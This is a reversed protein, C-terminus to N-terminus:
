SRSSVSKVPPTVRRSWPTTITDGSTVRHAIGDVRNLNNPRSRNDLYGLLRGPDGHGPESHGDDDLICSDRPRYARGARSACLARWAAIRIRQCDDGAFGDYAMTRNRNQASQGIVSVRVVCIGCRGAHADAEIGSIGAINDLDHNSAVHGLRAPAPAIPRDPNAGAAQQGLGIGGPRVHDLNGDCGALLGQGHKGPSAGRSRCSRGPRRAGGAGRTGGPRLALLSEHARRPFGSWVSGGSVSSGLALLPEDPVRSRGPRLAIRPRGPRGAFGPRHSWGSINARSTRSPWRTRLALLANLPQGSCRSRGPGSPWCSRGAGSPWRPSIARRTSSPCGPRCSWRAQSACGSGSPSSASRTRSSGSARWLESVANDAPIKVGVRPM